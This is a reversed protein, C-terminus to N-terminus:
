WIWAKPDAGCDPIGDTAVVVRRGDRIGVMRACIDYRRIRESSDSRRCRHGWPATTEEQDTGAPCEGSVTM